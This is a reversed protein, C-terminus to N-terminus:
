SKAKMAKRLRPLTAMALFKQIKAIAIRTPKTM